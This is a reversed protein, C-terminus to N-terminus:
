EYFKFKRKIYLKLPSLNKVSFSTMCTRVNRRILLSTAYHLIDALVSVMPGPTSLIFIEAFESM